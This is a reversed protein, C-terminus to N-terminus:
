WNKIREYKPRVYSSNFLYDKYESLLAVSAGQRLESKYKNCADCFNNFQDTFKSYRGYEKSRKRLRDYEVLRRKELMDKVSKVAEKCSYDKYGPFPSSRCCYKEKLSKTMFANGCHACTTMKYGNYICYHVLSFVFDIMQRCSYYRFVDPDFEAQEIKDKDFMRFRDLEQSFCKLAAVELVSRSGEYITSNEGKKYNLEIDYKSRYNDFYELSANKLNDTRKFFDSLLIWAGHPDAYNFYNNCADNLEFHKCLNEFIECLFTEVPYPGHVSETSLLIVNSGRIEFSIIQEKDM